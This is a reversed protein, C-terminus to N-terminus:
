KRLRTDFFRGMVAYAERSEPLESNYFFGHFMADWGHFTSDGGALSLKNHSNLAASFEFSRTGTIFLTPPFKALVADSVLPYALPDDARAEGMYTPLRPPPPTSTARAQPPRPSAGLLAGTLRLSDGAAMQGLSSCFVGIAGPNPLQHAQFWAISQATLSGGASCGYIGISAPDYTKLLERYVAAVDQSAAPFQHEPGMRYDVSVVKIKMTAALPVSEVLSATRAGTVFGGGHLNILVRRRNEEAVGEPPTVVDVLIGGITEESVEVPYRQRMPALFTNMIGDQRAREAKIDALPPGSGFPKEVILRRLYDAGEQSLLDSLPVEANIVVTGDQKYPRAGEPAAQRAQSVPAALAAGALGLAAVAASKWLRTSRSM